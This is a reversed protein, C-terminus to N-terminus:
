SSQREGEGRLGLWVALLCLGLMLAAEFTASFVCGAQMLELVRVSVASFTTLGGLLGVQWFHCVHARSMRRVSWALVFCGLVNAIWIGLPLGGLAFLNELGYRLLAGLGGGLAAWLPLFRARCLFSEREIRTNM